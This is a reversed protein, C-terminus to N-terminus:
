SEIKGGFLDLLTDVMNVNESSEELSKEENSTGEIEIKVKLKSKIVKFIALEVDNKKEIESLKNAHFEFKPNFLITLTDEVLSIPKGEMLLAATQLKIEKVENLVIEWMNLISELTINTPSIIEIEKEEKKVEIKPQVTEKHKFEDKPQVIEKHKFEDKPKSKQIIQPSVKKQVTQVTENPRGGLIFAVKTELAIIRDLFEETLFISISEEEFNKTASIAEILMLETHLKLDSVNRLSSTYNSVVKLIELFYKSGHKKTIEEM